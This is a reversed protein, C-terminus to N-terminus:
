KFSLSPLGPFATQYTHYRLRLNELKTNTELAKCFPPADMDQWVVNFCVEDAKVVNGIHTIPFFM